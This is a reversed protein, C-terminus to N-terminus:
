RDGDWWIATQRDIDYRTKGIRGGSRVRAKAIDSIYLTHGPASILLAELLDELDAIQRKLHAINVDDTRYESMPM